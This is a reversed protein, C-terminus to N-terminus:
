VLYDLQRNIKGQQTWRAGPRPQAPMVRLPPRYVYTEAAALDRDALYFHGDPTRATYVLVNRSGGEKQVIRAALRQIRVGAAGRADKVGLDSLAQVTDANLTTLAQVVPLESQSYGTWEVARGSADLNVQLGWSRDPPWYRDLERPAHRSADWYPWVLAMGVALSTLLFGAVTLASGQGDRTGLSQEASM